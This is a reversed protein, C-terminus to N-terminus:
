SVRADHSRAIYRMLARRQCVGVVRMKKRSIKHMAVDCRVIDHSNTRHVVRTRVRVKHSAVHPGPQAMM